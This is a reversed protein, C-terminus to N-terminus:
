IKLFGPNKGAFFKSGSKERIQVGPIRPSNSVYEELDKKLKEKKEDKQANIGKVKNDEM